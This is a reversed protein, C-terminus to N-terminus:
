AHGTLHPPVGLELLVACTRDYLDYNQRMTTACTNLNLKKM